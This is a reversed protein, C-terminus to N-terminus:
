RRGGPYGQTEGGGEGMGSFGMGGPERPGMTSPAPIATGEDDGIEDDIGRPAPPGAVPGIAVRDNPASIVIPAAAIQPEATAAAAAAPDAALAFQDEGSPSSASKAVSAAARPYKAAAAAAVDRDQSTSALVVAPARASRAAQAPSPADATAVRASPAAGHEAGYQPLLLMAVLCAALGAVLSAWVARRAFDDGVANAAIVAMASASTVAEQSWGPDLVIAGGEPQLQPMRPIEAIMRAVLAPPITADDLRSLRRDLAREHLPQMM